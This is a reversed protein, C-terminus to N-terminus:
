SGSWAAGLLRFAVLLLLAALAVVLGSRAERRAASPDSAPSPAVGPEV